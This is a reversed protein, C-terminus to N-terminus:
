QPTSLGMDATGGAPNDLLVDGPATPQAEVQGSWGAALLLAAALLGPGALALCALRGRAARWALPALLLSLLLLGWQTLTPVPQAAALGAYAIAGM